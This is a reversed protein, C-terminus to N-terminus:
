FNKKHKHKVVNKQQFAYLKEWFTSILVKRGPLYEAKIPKNCFKIRVCTKINYPCFCITSEQSLKQHELYTKSLNESFM